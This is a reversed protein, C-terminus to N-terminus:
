SIEYQMAHDVGNLIQIKHTFTVFVLHLM